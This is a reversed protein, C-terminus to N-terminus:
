LFEWIAVIVTGEEVRESMLDDTLIDRLLPEWDETKVIAYM